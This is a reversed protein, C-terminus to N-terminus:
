SSSRAAASSRSARAPTRLESWDFSRGPEYVEREAYGQKRAAARVADAAELVLLPEDGLIAYVPRADERPPRRAARRAAENGRGRAEAAEGGRAPAHDAAGHRGAHRPLPAAGGAGEGPDRRRQLDRRAHAAGREGARLGRGQRRARPLRGTACSSSACAAPAPSRCSRRRARRRRSYWCRTPPRPTPGGGERRHWGRHQAQSRARDRRERRARLADPVAARGHRAPSVRLRLRSRWPSSSRGEVVLNVLRGPVVVVKKVNQRRRLKQVNDNRAGAEEIAERRRGEARPDIRAAQREGAGRARDRGARAGRTPRPGPRTM